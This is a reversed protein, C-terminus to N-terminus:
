SDIPPVKMRVAESLAERQWRLVSAEVGEEVGPPDPAPTIGYGIRISVLYEGANPAAYPAANWLRDLSQPWSLIISRSVKEGPEIKVVSPPFYGFVQAGVRMKGRAYSLEIEQGNQRWILWDDSVLWIPGLYGNRVDCGLESRPPNVQGSIRSIEVTVSKAM